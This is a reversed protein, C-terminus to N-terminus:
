DARPGSTKFAWIIAPWVLVHFSGAFIATAWFPLKGGMAMAIPVFALGLVGVWAYLAVWAWRRKQRPTTARTRRFFLPAVAAAIAGTVGLAVGVVISAVLTDSM